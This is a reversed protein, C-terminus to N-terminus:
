FLRGPDKPSYSRLYNSLKLKRATNESTMYRIKGFIPREPGWARDYRGLVWFIGSYSNPNRGDVAFRNNLEIMSALADRPTASWELIKKGWLMRLYNHMRGETVLQTQAANWLADHTTASQLQDLTYVVPRLDSSHEELTQQAWAPLSEYQDYDPRQWCMNFGLERWTVLEDLFSEAAGSMGWWGARGGRTQKVDGLDVPSWGEKSLLAAFIEHASIHGFHLYPSLGSAADEDPQNREDAYRNLRTELFRNMCRVAEASGGKMVAVTVSQDVPLADLAATDCGLILDSAPRWRSSLEEPIQALRPVTVDNLPSAQPMVTLHPTLTKQLYRRFAYATPFVQDAARMPLLGNSDVAEMLVPSRRAVAHIMRPLFFCPFDDTIIVAAKRSLEALLGSGDGFGPEVYPLYAHGSQTAVEQNWRMGQIVFTHLRRSAWTYDCRLAELILLPRNLKKAWEVARDLSFNYVLRRNATMWYLVFQGDSRASQQNLATIRLPPVGSM